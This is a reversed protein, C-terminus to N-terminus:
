EKDESEAKHQWYTYVKKGVECHKTPLCIKWYEVPIRIPETTAYDLHNFVGIGLYGMLNGDKDFVPQGVSFTERAGQMEYSIIYEGDNACVKGADFETAIEIGEVDYQKIFRSITEM